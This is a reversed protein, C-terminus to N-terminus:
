KPGTSAINLGAPGRMEQVDPSSQSAHLADHRHAVGNTENFDIRLLAAERKFVWVKLRQLRLNLPALSESSGRGAFSGCSRAACSEGADPEAQRTRRQRIRSSRCTTMKILLSTMCNPMRRLLCSSGFTRQCHCISASRIHNRGEIRLPFRNRAFLNGRSKGAGKFLASYDTPVPCVRKHRLRGKMERGQEQLLTTARTLGYKKCFPFDRQRPRASEQWLIEIVPAIGYECM